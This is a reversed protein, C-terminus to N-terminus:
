FISLNPKLLKISDVLDSSAKQLIQEGVSIDSVDVFVKVLFDTFLISPIEESNCNNEEESSDISDEKKIFKSIEISYGNRQYKFGQVHNIRVISYGLAELIEEYNENIETKVMKTVVSTRQKNKDPLDFFMLTNKFCMESYVVAKKQKNRYVKETRNFKESNWEFKENTIGYLACQFM